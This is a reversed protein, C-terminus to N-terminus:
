RVAPKAVRSFVPAFTGDALDLYRLQYDRLFRSDNFLDRDSPYWGGYVDEEPDRKAVVRPMGTFILDPNRDLVYGGEHSEHGPIGVRKGPARAIRADNLGLMDIIPLRSDYGLIGVNNAAVVTTPSFRELRAAISHVGSLVSDDIRLNKINPGVVSNPFTLAVLAVSAGGAVAVHRIRAVTEGVLLGLLPLMPLWMRHYVLADGGIRLFFVAFTAIIGLPMWGRASPSARTMVAWLALTLLPAGYYDLVFKRMLFWGRQLLESSVPHAKAYYTNPLPDGYYSWAWLALGVYFSAAITWFLAVHLARSRDRRRLWLVLGVPAIYLIAEPRTLGCLGFLIGLRIYRSAPADRKIELAEITGVLLLFALLHAELGGFMWLGFTGSAVLVAVAAVAPGRSLHERKLHIYVRALTAWALLTGLWRAGTPADINVRELAYLLVVWLFSSYGMVREGVNYVIGNGLSWNDVYRFAIYSDDATHNFYFAHAVALACAGTLIAIDLRMKEEKLQIV